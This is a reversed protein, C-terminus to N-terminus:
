APAEPGQMCAKKGQTSDAKPSDRLLFPVVFNPAHIWFKHTQIGGNQPMYGENQPKQPMAWPSMGWSDFFFSPM